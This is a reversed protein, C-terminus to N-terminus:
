ILILLNIDHRTAHHQGDSGGLGPPPPWDGPPEHAAV